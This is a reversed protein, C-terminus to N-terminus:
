IYTTQVVWVECRSTVYKMGWVECRSTVYRTGWVQFHCVEYRVGPLSMSWVECRSTVHTSWVECRSTVYRMDWVQVHCVECRVCWVQFHYVECRVQFLCVEYRVGPLSMGWLECRSTVYMYMVGRVQFHCVEFGFIDLIAISTMKNPQNTIGNIRRVLWAFLSTYLSKAIGDRSFIGFYFTCINAM